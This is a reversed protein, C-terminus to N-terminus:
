LSRTHEDFRTADVIVEAAIGGDSEIDAKVLSLAARDRGHVAVKAGHHAFLRAIAAGIGRSSGTVLAVAFWEVPTPLVQSAPRELHWLSLSRLVTSM